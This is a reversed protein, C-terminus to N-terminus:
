AYKVQQHACLIKQISEKTLPKVLFAEVNKNAYSRQKDREDVSSSLIYIKISRKIELSLNDFRELFEWGNTIPMNIDLFLTTTGVHHENLFSSTIYELAAQGNTFIHTTVPGLISELTMKSIVNTIHDDDIMIFNLHKNEMNYNREYNCM